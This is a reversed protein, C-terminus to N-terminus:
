VWMACEFVMSKGIGFRMDDAFHVIRYINRPAAKKGEKRKKEGGKKKEKPILRAVSVSFAFHFTILSYLLIIYSTYLLPQSSPFFHSSLRFFSNITGERPLSYHQGVM